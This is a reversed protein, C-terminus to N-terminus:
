FNNQRKINGGWKIFNNGEEVPPEPPYPLNPNTKGSQVMKLWEIAKEYRTLRLEIDVEPNALQIYHWIACDKTYMLLIPNRADGEAAFIADTDYATIFGRVEEVAANIASQLISSDARSIEDVVPGYLHTKIEAPLLFAM